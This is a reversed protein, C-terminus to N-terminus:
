RLRWGDFQAGQPLGMEVYRRSWATHQDVKQKAIAVKGAVSHKKPCELGRSVGRHAANTRCLRVGLACGLSWNRVKIVVIGSAGGWGGGCHARAPGVDGM